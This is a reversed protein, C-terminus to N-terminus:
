CDFSCETTASAAHLDNLRSVFYLCCHIRCLALRLAEKTTVLNVDLAVECPWAVNFYLKDTVLVSVNHPNRCTVARRLTTVLLENFFCWSRTKWCTNFFCHTCSSNFCCLSNAVVVCSSNFENELVSVEEEKFHVSAKLNLMWNSFDDGTNIKNFPLNTNCRALLQWHCM